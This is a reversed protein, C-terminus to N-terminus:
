TQYRASILSSICYSHPSCSRVSKLVVSFRGMIIILNTPLNSSVSKDPVKNIGNLSINFGM